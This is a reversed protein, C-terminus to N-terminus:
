KEMEEVELSRRLASIREAIETYKYPNTKKFWRIDVISVGHQEYVTVIDRNVINNSSDKFLQIDGRILVDILRSYVYEKLQDKEDPDLCYLQDLIARDGEILCFTEYDTLFRVSSNFLPSYLKIYQGEEDKLNWETLTVDVIKM